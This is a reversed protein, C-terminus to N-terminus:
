LNREQMSTEFNSVTDLHLRIIVLDLAYDNWIAPELGTLIAQSAPARGQQWSVTCAWVRSVLCCSEVTICALCDPGLRSHQLVARGEWTCFKSRVRASSRWMETLVNRWGPWTERFLLGVIHKFFDWLLIMWWQNQCLHLSKLVTVLVLSGASSWLCFGKLIECTLFATEKPLGCVSGSFGTELM